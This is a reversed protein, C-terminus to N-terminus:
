LAWEVVSLVRAMMGGMTQKTAALSPCLTALMCKMGTGRNMLCRPVGAEELRDLLRCDVEWVQPPKKMPLRSGTVIPLMTPPAPV